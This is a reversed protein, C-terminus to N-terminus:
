KRERIVSLCLWLKEIVIKKNKDRELMVVDTEYQIAIEM